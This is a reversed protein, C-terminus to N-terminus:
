RSGYRCSGKSQYARCLETKYKNTDVEYVKNYQDLNFFRTSKEWLRSELASESSRRPRAAITRMQFQDFQIEPAHDLPQQVKALTTCLIGPSHEASVEERSQNIIDINEELKQDCVQLEPITEKLDSQAATITTAKHISPLEKEAVRSDKLETQSKNPSCPDGFLKKRSSMICSVVSPKNASRTKLTEHKVFNDKVSSSNLKKPSSSVVDASESHYIFDFMLNVDEIRCATTSIPNDFSANELTKPHSAIDNGVAVDSNHKLNSYSETTAYDNCRSNEISDGQDKSNLKCDTCNKVATTIGNDLNVNRSENIKKLSTPQNPIESKFDKVAISTSSSRPIQNSNEFATISERESRPKRNCFETESRSSNRNLIRSSQIQCDLPESTYQIPSTRETYRIVDTKASRMEDTGKMEEPKTYRSFIEGMASAYKEDSSNSNSMRDKVKSQIEKVTRSFGQNQLHSYKLSPDHLNRQQLGKNLFPNVKIRAPPCKKADFNRNTWNEVPPYKSYTGFYTKRNYGHYSSTSNTMNRFPFRPISHFVEPIANDEQNVADGGYSNPKRFPTSNKFHPPIEGKYFQQKVRSPFGKGPCSSSYQISHNSHFSNRRIRPSNGEAVSFQVNADEHYGVKPRDNFFPVGNEGPSSKFSRSNTFVKSSGRGNCSLTNPPPRCYPAPLEPPFQSPNTGKLAKDLAAAAVALSM